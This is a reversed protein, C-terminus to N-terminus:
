LAVVPGPLGAVSTGLVAGVVLDFAGGPAIGHWHSGRDTAVLGHQLSTQEARKSSSSCTPTSSSTHSPFPGHPRRSVGEPDRGQGARRIAPGFRRHARTTTAM